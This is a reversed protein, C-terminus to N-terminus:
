LVKYGEIHEVSTLWDPPSIVWVKKFAENQKCTGEELNVSGQNTSCPDRLLMSRTLWSATEVYSVPLSNKARPPMIHAKGYLIM